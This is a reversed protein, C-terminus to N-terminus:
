HLFHVILAYYYAPVRMRVCSRNRCVRAARTCARPYVARRFRTILLRLATKAFKFLYRNPNEIFGVHSNV